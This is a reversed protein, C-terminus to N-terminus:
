PLLPWVVIQTAGAALVEGGGGFKKHCYLDNKKCSYHGNGAWFIPSHGPGARYSLFEMLEQVPFNTLDGLSNFDWWDEGQFDRVVSM